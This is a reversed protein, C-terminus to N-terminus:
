AASPSSLLLPEGVFGIAAVFMGILAIRALVRESRRGSYAALHGLRLIVLLSGAIYATVGIDHAGFTNSRRSIPEVVRLVFGGIFLVLGLYGGFRIVGDRYAATLPRSRVELSAM